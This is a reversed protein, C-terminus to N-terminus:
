NNNNWETDIVSLVTRMQVKTGVTIRVCNNLSTVHSLDRIYIYYKALIGIFLDKELEDKFRILVFNGQGDYINIPLKTNESLKKIFWEKSSLVSKVYDQTYALDKLAAIAAEQSFTNINKANRVKNIIDINKQHSIAYGVRFNALAFAKSFTRTILINENNKVLESSGGDSFEFYAEDIIFFVDAFEKIIQEIISSEIYTGTPNNPNCIYAIKPKVENLSKMYSDINFVYGNHKDYEYSCTIVKAGMSQCTVRFNEYTPALILVTDGVSLYCKTIYEQAYDSSGFYQVNNDNVNSYDSIAKILNRNAVDPYYNYMPNSLIEAMKEGVLPTPPVTAENWDLKLVKTIDVGEWIRHSALKYPTLNEICKNEFKM